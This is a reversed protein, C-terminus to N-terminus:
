FTETSYFHYTFMKVEYVKKRMGERISLKFKGQMYSVSDTNQITSFFLGFIKIFYELAFTWMCYGVPGIHGADEKQLNLKVSSQM